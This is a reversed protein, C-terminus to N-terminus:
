SRKGVQKVLLKHLKLMATYSAFIVKNGPLGCFAQLATELDPQTHKVPVEDYSLRLAMDVARTGSTLAVDHGRLSTFDIDWLWSMDRSDALADNIAIMIATNDRVYSALGQRFSAPNKVLNLQLEGNKLQFAQGRGFAPKVQSLEEVLKAPDATPLVARVLALAGAANQFNHQGTVRLTTKFDEGAIRYTASEDRFAALEVTLPMATTELTPTPGDVAVLEDDRPFFRLLKQAVGFYIVAVTGNAAIASLRKDDANVIVGDTASLMTEGILRAVIDVEGFRDLQDRSANLGLVFRPRVVDTFQRAYAEDLEFVAIDFPLRGAKTAQQSVSSIIGRTLNSGTPNTLVRKGNARLLEVVMKTTTTKGNTGTVIVVGGPLQRLMAGLYGPILTEVVLGPMAQGSSKGRLKVVQAVSKGLVTGVLRRM